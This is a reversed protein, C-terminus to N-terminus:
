PGLTLRSAMLLTSCVFGGPPLPSGQSLHYQNGKQAPTFHPGLWFSYCTESFTGLPHSLPAQFLVPTPAAAAPKAPGPVTGPHPPVERPCSLKRDAEVPNSTVGEM